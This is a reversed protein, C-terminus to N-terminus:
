RVNLCIGEHWAHHEFVSLWDDHLQLLPLQSTVRRRPGDSPASSAIILGFNHDVKRECGLDLDQGGLVRWTTPV